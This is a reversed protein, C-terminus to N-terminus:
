RNRTNRFLRWDLKVLYDALDFGQQKEFETGLNELLSSVEFHIGPYENSIEQMKSTWLQFARGQISLDPFLVVKRGQLVSCKKPSLSSLNYVALWIFNEPQEPPGFYLTGLVATKPAEVLAIPNTPFRTLLHEGFLCTVKKENSLYNSLWYPLSLGKKNHYRAIISHLFDTSTTHNEENFQKVQIARINKNLDIFPITLGGKRYGRCVTGLSYQGVVKGVDIPDFPYPVRKLLNQVFINQDWGRNTKALIEEPIYFDTKPCSDTKLPSFKPEPYPIVESKEQESVRKVYGDKYPNLAYGCNVARDCRGYKEPLLSGTLTDVYRVLRKKGCLPCYHKRSGPEFIYRYIQTM